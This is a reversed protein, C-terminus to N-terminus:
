EISKHKKPKNKAKVCVWAYASLISCGLGLFKITDAACGSAVFAPISIRLLPPLAVSAAIAIWATKPSTSGCDDPM